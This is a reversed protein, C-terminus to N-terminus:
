TSLMPMADINLMMCAARPSSHLQLRVLYAVAVLVQRVGYDAGVREARVCVRDEIYRNDSNWALACRVQGLTCNGSYPRRRSDATSEMQPNTSRTRLGPVLGSDLDLM